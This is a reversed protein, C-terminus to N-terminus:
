LVLGRFVKLSELHCVSPRKGHAASNRHPRVIHRGLNAAKGLPRLVWKSVGIVSSANCSSGFRPARKPDVSSGSKNDAIADKGPSSVQFSQLRQDARRPIASSRGTFSM